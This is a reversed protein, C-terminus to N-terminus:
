FAPVINLSIIKMGETAAKAQVFIDATNRDPAQVTAGLHQVKGEVSVTLAANWTLNRTM